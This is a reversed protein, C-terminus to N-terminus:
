RQPAVARDMVQPAPLALPLLRSIALGGFCSLAGVAFGAGYGFSGAVFGGTVTGPLAGLAFLSLFTTLDTGGQTRDSLGM